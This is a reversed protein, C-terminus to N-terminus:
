SGRVTTAWDLAGVKTWPVANEVPDRTEVIVTVSV